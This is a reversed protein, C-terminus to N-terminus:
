TFYSVRNGYRTLLLVLGLLGITTTGINMNGFLRHCDRLLTIILGRRELVSTVDKIGISSYRTVLYLLYVCVMTKGVPPRGRWVRYFVYPYLIELPLSFPPFCRLLGNHQRLSTYFCLGLADFGGAGVMGIAAHQLLVVFMVIGGVCFTCSGCSVGMRLCLGRSGMVRAYAENGGKLFGRFLYYLLRGFM